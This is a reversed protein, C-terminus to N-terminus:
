SPEAEAAPDTVMELLPTETRQEAVLEVSGNSKVTFSQLTVPEQLTEDLYREMLARLQGREMTIRIKGRMM